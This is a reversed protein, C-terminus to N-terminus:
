ALKSWLLLGYSPNLHRLLRARDDLALGAWILHKDTPKVLATDHMVAFKPKSPRPLSSSKEEGVPDGSATV